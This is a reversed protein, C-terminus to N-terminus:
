DGERKFDGCKMMLMGTIVESSFVIESFAMMTLSIPLGVVSSLMLYENMGIVIKSNM